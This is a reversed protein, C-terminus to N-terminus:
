LDVRTLADGGDSLDAAGFNKVLKESKLWGRIKSKLVGGTGHGHLIYVVPRGIMLSSSIKDRVKAQAESLNLGRVDVTNSQTRMAVGSSSRKEIGDGNAFTSKAQGEAAIARDAAKSRTVNRLVGKKGGAGRLDGGVNVTPLEYNRGTSMAVQSLKLVVTMNNVKVEVRNGMTKTVIAERAFLPGQKCVVLQDGIKLEPKERLEAIPVLEASVEDIAAAAKQKKALVSPVNEAENLADRKVFRIEDWSKAVVRRSPDSKLKELVNELVTSSFFADGYHSVCFTLISCSKQFHSV